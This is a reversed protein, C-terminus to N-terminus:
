YKVNKTKDWNVFTHDQTFQSLVFGAIISRVFHPRDNSSLKLHEMM